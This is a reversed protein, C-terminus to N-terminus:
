EFVEMLDSAPVCIYDPPINPDNAMFWDSGATEIKECNCCGNNVLMLWAIIIWTILSYTANKKM